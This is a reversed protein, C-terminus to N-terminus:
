KATNNKIDLLTEAIRFGLVLLETYVRAMITGLVLILPCGIIIMAIGMIAGGAGQGSFISILGMIGVALTYLAVAVLELGYIIKIITPTVFSSFSFDFLAGVFGKKAAM